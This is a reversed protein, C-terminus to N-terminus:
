TLIARAGQQRTALCRVRLRHLETEYLGEPMARAAAIAEDLVGLAEDARGQRLLVDALLGLHYTHYTRSGTALWAAIGKRIEDAGKDLEGRGAIAWGRLV